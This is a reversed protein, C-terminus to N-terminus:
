LAERSILWKYFGYTIGLTQGYDRLQGKPYDYDKVLIPHTCTVQAVSKQNEACRNFFEPDVMRMVETQWLLVRAHDKQEGTVKTYDLVIPDGTLRCRFIEKRTILPQM